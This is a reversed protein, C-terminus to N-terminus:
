KKKKSVKKKSSVKPKSVRKKGSSELGKLETEIKLEEKEIKLEENEIRSVIKFLNEDMRKIRRELLVLIRLSWVIALLTGIIIAYLFSEPSFAM